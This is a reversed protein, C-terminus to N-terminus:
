LCGQKSRNIHIPNLESGSTKTIYYMLIHDCLSEKRNLLTANIMIEREFISEVLGFVM